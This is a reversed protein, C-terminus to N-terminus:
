AAEQTCLMNIVDYIQKAREDIEEASKLIRFTQKGDFHYLKSQTQILEILKMPNINPQENFKFKISSDSAEIKTIGIHQAM